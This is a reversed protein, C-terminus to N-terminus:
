CIAILSFFYYLYLFDASMLMTMCLFVLETTITTNRAFHYDELQSSLYGLITLISIIRILKWKWASSDPVAQQPQPGGPPGGLLQKRLKDALEDLDASDDAAPGDIGMRGPQTAQGFMPNNMLLKMMPNNKLEDPM